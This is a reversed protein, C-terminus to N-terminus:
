SLIDTSYLRKAFNNLDSKSLPTRTFKSYKKLANKKIYVGRPFSCRLFEEVSHQM